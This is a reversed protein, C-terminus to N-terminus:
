GSIRLPWASGGAAAAQASQVRRLGAIILAPSAAQRAKWAM